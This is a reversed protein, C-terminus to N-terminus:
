PRGGAPRPWPGRGRRRRRRRGASPPPACRRGSPRTGPRPRSGSGPRAAAPRGAGSRGPGGGPAPRCGGPPRGAPRRSSGPPARQLRVRRLQPGKQSPLGPRSPPSAATWLPGQDLPRSALRGLVGLVGLGLVGLGVHQQGHPQQRGPGPRPALDGARGQGPQLLGEVPRRQLGPRLRQPGREHGHQAAGLRDPGALQEVVDAAPHHQQRLPGRHAAPDLVVGPVAVGDVAVGEGGRGLHGPQQLLVLPRGPRGLGGAVQVREVQRRDEVVDALPRAVSWLTAPSSSVRRARARMPRSASSSSSTATSTRWWRSSTSVAVRRSRSSGLTTSPTAAASPDGRRRRRSCRSVTASPSAM